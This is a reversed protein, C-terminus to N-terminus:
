AQERDQRGFRPRVLNPPVKGVRTAGLRMDHRDAQYIPCDVRQLQRWGYSGYTKVRMAGRM